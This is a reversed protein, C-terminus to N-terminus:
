DRKALVVFRGTFEAVPREDDMIQAKMMMRANKGEKLASFDGTVDSLYAVARPERSVPKHYHINADGLVVSGELERELLQLHLLGWCTLTGLSYISGAFMTGHVNINRSLQARTEFMRGTYQHIKIGMADSIPIDKAWTNQLEECWEPRYIIRNQESFSKKLQHEAMPNKVTDAEEVVQYGCKKYFGITTDRSNIIVHTAGEARAASELAFIIAVGHGEGRYEPATAMFRIQAEEPSNFHLRGVAVPDNAENVVMRHLGVQDYEDQESGLPRQFPERLVRWRLHFYKEFETDTTPTIVKYM